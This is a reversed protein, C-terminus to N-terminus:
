WMFTDMYAQSNNNSKKGQLLTQGLLQSFWYSLRNYINELHDSTM